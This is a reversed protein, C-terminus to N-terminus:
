GDLNPRTSSTVLFCVAEGVGFGGGGTNGDRGLAATGGGRGLATTGGECGVAEASGDRGWAAGGMGLYGELSIGSGLLPPAVGGCRVFTEAM